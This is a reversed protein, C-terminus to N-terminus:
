IYTYGEVLPWQKAVDAYNGSVPYHRLDNLYGEIGNRLCMYIVDVNYNKAIEPWEDNKQASKWSKELIRSLADCVAVRAPNAEMFKKFDDKYHSVHYFAINHAMMQECCCVSKEIGRIKHIKFKEM